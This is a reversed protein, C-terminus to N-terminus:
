GACEGASAGSDAWFLAAIRSQEKPSAEHPLGKGGYLKWTSPLIQYAGGAGSSPTLADFNGGSECLVIDVPIAWGKVTDGVQREAEAASIQETERLQREWRGIQERLGALAAERSQLAGALAAAQAAAQARVSAIQDRATALEANHAQQSERATAITELQEAVQARLELTREILAEDASQIRELYEARLALDDYGDARLLVGLADPGGAKYIAVLRDALSAVSRRLKSRKDELRDHTASVEAALEAARRQGRALTASLQAERQAAAGAQDRKAALAATRAEVQGRLGEAQRRADDARSSLGTIGQASASQSAASAYIALAAVTMAAFCAIRLIKLGEPRARPRPDVSPGM